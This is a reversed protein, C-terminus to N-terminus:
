APGNDDESQEQKDESDTPYIEAMKKLSAEYLGVYEQITNVSDM